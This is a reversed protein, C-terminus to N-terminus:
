RDDRSFRYHAQKYRTKRTPLDSVLVPTSVSSHHHSSSSSSSYWLKKPPSYIALSMLLHPLHSSLLPLKSESTRKHPKPVKEALPTPRQSLRWGM